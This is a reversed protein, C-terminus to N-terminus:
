VTVHVAISTRNASQTDAKQSDRSNRGAEDECVTRLPSRGPSYGGAFGSGALRREIADTFCTQLLLVAVILCFFFARDQDLVRRKNQSDM